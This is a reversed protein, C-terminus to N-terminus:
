IKSIILSKASNIATKINEANKGGATAIFAQGGGGGQIIKAAERVIESANLQKEKVLDDSFAIALNPKEEIVAGL